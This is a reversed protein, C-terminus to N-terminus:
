VAPTEAPPESASAPTPEVEEIAAGALLLDITKRNVVNERLRDMVRSNKILKQIQSRTARTRMAHTMLEQQLDANTAEVTEQAAIKRLIFNTKVDFQAQQNAAALIEDQHEVIEEETVGREQNANVMEQVRRQTAEQLLEQPMEFVIQENLFHIIQERKSQEIKQLLDKEMAQRVADRLGPADDALRTLRAFDDDLEPLVQQHVAKLTVEFTMEKGALEQVPFDDAMRVVVARTEGVGLGILGDCFGPLFNPEKVMMWHDSNERLQEPATPAVERVPQGDVFGHYDIVAVDGAVLPRSEVEPYDAHRERLNQIAQDVNEETVSVNPVKVPIGQLSPLEFAPATIVDVVFCFGGDETFRSEKVDTPSLVELGDQKSGEKYGEATLRERLEQEIQKAYRRAIMAAPAKGPRFGPLSVNQHYMKMIRARQSDVKERPVEVRISAKCDPFKEVTINMAFPCNARGRGGTRDRSLAPLM